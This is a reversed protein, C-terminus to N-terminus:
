IEVGAPSPMAEVMGKLTALEEALMRNTYGELARSALAGAPGEGFRWAIRLTVDTSEEPAPEFRVTGTEEFPEYLTSRWTIVRGPEDDIIRGDWELRMGRAVNLVWHITGDEDQTVAHTHKMFRPLNRLDRFFTYVEHPTRQVRVTEEFEAGRIGLKERMRGKAGPMVMGVARAVLYGGSGLGLLKGWWSKRQSGFLALAVGGVVSVAASAAVSAGPMRGMGRRRMMGRMRGGRARGMGRVGREKTREM